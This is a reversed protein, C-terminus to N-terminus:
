PVAPRGVLPQVTELLEALVVQPDTRPARCRWSVLGLDHVLDQVQPAAVVEPTALDKHVQAAVVLDRRSTPTHRM